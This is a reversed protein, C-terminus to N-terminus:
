DHMALHSHESGDWHITWTSNAASCAFLGSMWYGISEKVKSNRMKCSGFSGFYCFYKIMINAETIYNRTAAALIYRVDISSFAHAYVNYRTPDSRGRWWLVWFTLHELRELIHLAHCHIRCANYIWANLTKRQLNKRQKENWWKKSTTVAYQQRRKKKQVQMPRVMTCSNRESQNRTSNIYPKYVNEHINSHLSPNYVCTHWHVVSSVFFFFSSKKRTWVTAGSCLIRIHM